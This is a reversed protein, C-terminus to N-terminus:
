GFIDEQYRKNTRMERISDAAAEGNMNGIHKLIDRLVTEVGHAMKIKGSCFMQLCQIYLSFMGCVYIYGGKRIWLDYIKEADRALINQVYQRPHNPEQSFADHREFDLSRTATNNSPTRCFVKSLLSGSGKSALDTEQKLLNMTKRRCGFYLVTKGINHGEQHQHFRQMWFGRFPAIGSGAAIMLVPWVPDPPLRFENGDGPSSIHGPITTPLTVTDLMGTAVGAKERGTSTTYRVVGVVLSLDHQGTPASAISYKRPKM